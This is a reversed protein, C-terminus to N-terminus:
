QYFLLKHISYVHVCLPGNVIIIGICVVCITAVQCDTFWKNCFAVSSTDDKHSINEGEYERFQVTVAVGVTCTNQKNGKLTLIATAKHMYMICATSYVHIHTVHKCNSISYYSLLM